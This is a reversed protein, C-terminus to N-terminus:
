QRRLGECEKKSIELERNIRKNEMWKEHIEHQYKTSDESYKSQETTLVKQVDELQKRYFLFKTLGLNSSFRKFRLVFRM